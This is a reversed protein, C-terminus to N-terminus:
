KRIQNELEERTYLRGSKGRAAAGNLLTEQLAPFAPAEEPEEPAPEEAPEEPEAAVTEPEAASEEAAMECTEVQTEAFFSDVTQAYTPTAAAAAAESSARMAAVDEALGARVGASEEQAALLKEMKKDIRRLARTQKRSRGASILFGFVLLIILAALGVIGLWVANEEIYAICENIFNGVTELTVDEATGKRFFHRIIL